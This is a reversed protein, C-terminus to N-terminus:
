CHLVKGSLGMIELQHGARELKSKMKEEHWKQRKEDEFDEQWDIEPLKVLKAKTKPFLKQALAIAVCEEVGAYSGIDSCLSFGTLSLRRANWVALTNWPCTRGNLEVEQNDGAHLHGNLAAGAVLTNDEDEIVHRCLEQISEQSASVEASVFLLLDADISNAHLVV